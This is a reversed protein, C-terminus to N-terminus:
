LKHSFKEVFKQFDGLFMSIDINKKDLTKKCKKTCNISGMIYCNLPFNKVTKAWFKISEM